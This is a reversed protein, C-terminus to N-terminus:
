CTTRRWLHNSFCQKLAMQLISITAIKRFYKCLELIHTGPGEVETGGLGKPYFVLDRLKAKLAERVLTGLRGEGRGQKETIYAQSVATNERGGIEWARESRRAEEQAEGEMLFAKERGIVPLNKKM